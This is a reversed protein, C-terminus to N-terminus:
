FGVEFSLDLWKERGYWITNVSSLDAINEFANIIYKKNFINYINLSVKFMSIMNHFEECQLGINLDAIYYDPIKEQPVKVLNYDSRDNINLQPYSFGNYLIKPTILLKIITTGVFRLGM